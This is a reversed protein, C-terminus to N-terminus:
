EVRPIVARTTRSASIRRQSDSDWGIFAHCGGGRVQKGQFYVMSWLALGAVGLLYPEFIVTRFHRTLLEQWREIPRPHEGRDLRALLRPISARGPLVLDLVHVRGDDGLLTGLHALLGNVSNDPLHHLLSNLLICDYGPGADLRMTTVDAVRFRPGYRRSADRIYAPNIDVGLYDAALFHGANTGPGCGVDLVKAGPSLEIRELFPRLKREAFPAQWLRYLIANELLRSIM